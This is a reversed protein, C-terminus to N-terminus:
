KAEGQSVPPAPLDPAILPTEPQFKGYSDLQGYNFELMPRIADQIITDSVLVSQAISNKILIAEHTKALNSDGVGSESAGVLIPSVGIAWCLCADIYYLVKSFFQGDTQQAISVLDDLRDIVMASSNELKEMSKLMAQAQSVRIPQGMGNLLPQGESDTLVAEGGTNTKGVLLPTAQRQSAVALYAMVIKYLEYYPAARALAPIGWPQEGLTLYDQHTLILLRDRPINIDVSLTIGTTTEKEIRYGLREPNLIFLEALAANGNVIEYRKEAVCVGYPIFSHLNLLLAQTSGRINQLQSRVDKQITADPHTYDGLAGLMYMLKVELAMSLKISNRAMDQFYEYTYNSAWDYRQVVSALIGTIFGEVQTSLLSIPLEAM